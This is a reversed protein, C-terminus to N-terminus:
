LFMAAVAAFGVAVLSMIGSASYYLTLDALALRVAKESTDCMTTPAQLIRKHSMIRKLRRKTSTCKSGSVQTLLETVQTVKKARIALLDSLLKNCDADPVPKPTPTQARRRTTPWSM